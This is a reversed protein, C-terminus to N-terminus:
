IISSKFTEKPMQFIIHKIVAAPIVERIDFEYLPNAAINSPVACNSDFCCESPYDGKTYFPAPCPQKFFTWMGM